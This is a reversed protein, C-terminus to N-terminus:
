EFNALRVEPKLKTDVATNEYIETWKKLIIKKLKKKDNSLMKDWYVPKILVMLKNKQKPNVYITQIYNKYESNKLYTIVQIGAPAVPSYSSSEQEMKKYVLSNIESFSGFLFVLLGFIFIWCFIVIGWIKVAKEKAFSFGCLCEEKNEFVWNHCKPCTRDWIISKQSDIENDLFHIKKLTRRFKKHINRYTKINM